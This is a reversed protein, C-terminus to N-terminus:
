AAATEKETEEVSEVAEAEIAIKVTKGVVVTGAELVANWRLGFDERNLEGTLSVGIRRQGQFDVIPGSYEGKLVIQRTVDRITLDGVLDFSEEDRPRVETSRFTMHPFRESDFFDASRLHNDRDELGSSVSATGITAEVHSREPHEEDIHATATVDSFSGRVKHIMMHRASFSVDAHGQDLEWTAM